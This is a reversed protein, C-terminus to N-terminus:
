RESLRKRAQTPGIPAIYPYVKPPAAAVDIPYIRERLLQDAQLGVDQYARSVRVIGITKAVTLSGTAM